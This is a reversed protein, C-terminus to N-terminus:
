HECPSVGTLCVRNFVNGERLSHLRVTVFGVFWIPYQFINLYSFTVSFNCQTASVVLETVVLVQKCRTNRHM